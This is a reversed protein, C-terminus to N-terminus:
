YNLIVWNKNIIYLKEKRAMFIINLFLLIKTEQIISCNKDKQLHPQKKVQSAKTNFPSDQDNEKRKQFFISAQVM